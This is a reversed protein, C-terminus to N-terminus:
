CFTLYIKLEDETIDPTLASFIKAFLNGNIFIACEEVGNEVSSYVAYNGVYFDWVELGDEWIEYFCKKCHAYSAENSNSAALDNQCFRCKTHKDLEIVMNNM